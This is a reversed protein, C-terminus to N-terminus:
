RARQEGLGELIADAAAEGTEYAGHATSFRAPSVAEGTFFLRGDVPAALVAREDAAGPLAYSYSGGIWPAGAWASAALLTLRSGIGSGLRHALEERAFALFAAEGERELDRALEGGFYGEIIPLGFPRIQYSGTRVASAQGMARTDVPLDDADRVLLFVKNALGLPLKGAAEVKRPLPPDFRLAECALVDTAVTIIVARANLTGRSTHLEIRDKRRHDILTVATDLAVPVPAGYRAVATGYGERIRWDPGPGPDYRNLDIISARDLEVGNIYTSVAGIRGSWPDGPELLESLPGDPAAEGRSEAKEYFAAMARRAARDEDRMSDLRRGGEDWPAPMCDITLGLEAAIRTWANSRAGHLWGCGLDIAEGALAPPSISWARGGVRGAAELVIISLGPRVAQVRRAAAIGAAGAGVIAVDVDSLRRPSRNAEPM